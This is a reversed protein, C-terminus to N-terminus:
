SNKDEAKYKECAKLITKHGILRLSINSSFKLQTQGLFMRQEFHREINEQRSFYKRFDLVSFLTERVQSNKMTQEGSWCNIKTTIYFSVRRIM